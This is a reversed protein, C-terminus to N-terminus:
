VKCEPYVQINLPVTDHSKRSRTKEHIMFEFRDKHSALPSPPFQNMFCVLILFDGSATGKLM